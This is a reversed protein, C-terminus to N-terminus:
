LCRPFEQAPDFRVPITPVYWACADYAVLRAAAIRAASLHPRPLGIDGLLDPEEIWTLVEAAESESMTAAHVAALQARFQLLMVAPSM